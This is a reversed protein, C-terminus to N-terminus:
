FNLNKQEIKIEKGDSSVEVSGDLTLFVECGMSELIDTVEGDCMEEASCTIVAYKPNVSKFFQESNNEIKGHHPVKLFTHELDMQSIIEGLREEEADGAFLFRNEGHTASIVISFDNDSEKYSSKKAGYAEFLVDDLVFTMNSGIVTQTKGNKEMAEAYREYETNNGEYNPVIIQGIDLNNILKVAGGVHDKDFHTIFLYDVYDIGKDSLYDLIKKGDGRNGTDILVSHNKTTLIIADAKGVDLVAVDFEGEAEPASLKQVSFNCSCLFAATCICIMLCLIKKLKM